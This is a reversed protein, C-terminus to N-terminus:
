REETQGSYDIRGSELSLSLAMNDYSLDHFIDLLIYSKSTGVPFNIPVDDISGWKVAISFGNM